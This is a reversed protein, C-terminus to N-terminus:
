QMRREALMARHVWKSGKREMIGLFGLEDSFVSLLPADGEVSRIARLPLMAGHLYRELFATDLKGTALGLSHATATDMVQLTQPSALHPAMADGVSFPGSAIRRLAKLYARSGAIRALDRALSRIYTGSSCRITFQAETGDWSQMEISHITVKRAEPTVSEGRLARVYAREGDIHVASYAPPSQLIDGQLTTMAMRIDQEAPLPGRAVVTGQPDLTDTEEGFRVLAVYTKEQHMFYSMIRTYSGALVILLGSAFADLTGAHGLKVGRFSKRIEQLVANSTPGEPKDILLFGGQAM